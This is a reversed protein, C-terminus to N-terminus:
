SLYKFKYGKHTENRGSLAHWVASGYKKAAYTASDLEELLNNDMDFLGVKRKKTPLKPRNYYELKVLGWINDNIDPSKLKISKIINSEKNDAQAELYTNYSRIYAGNSDYKHVESHKIYETRATSFDKAKIYSFYYKDCVLNGLICANYITKDCCWLAEAALRGNSYKNDYEGSKLYRYVNKRSNKPNFYNSLDIKDVKDTNWFFGGAKTKNSVAHGIATYHRNISYSAELMTPYENLYKGTIDYQYVKISNDWGFCGGLVMNYVDDRSLFEPNVIDKELLYAEEENDFVNILKRVFSKPGFEKVAQQFKTKSKEYTNPRNVYIGNGLYGDFEYPTLTKHVGVYIYNNVTNITMYVIFKYNLNNEM